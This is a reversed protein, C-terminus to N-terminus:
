KKKRRKVSPSFAPNRLTEEVWRLIAMSRHRGYNLTALWYDLGPARAYQHKIEKIVSDYQEMRAQEENQVRLLHVIMLEPHSKEAFFLKLLIESRFPQPQPPVALWSKLAALGSVHISYVLRDPKGSHKKVKCTVLGGAELQKLTPYIQGYSESWFHGISAEARKKLDYGSGAGLSLLGLLSFQTSSM